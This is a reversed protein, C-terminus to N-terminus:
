RSNQLPVSEKNSSVLNLRQQKQILVKSYRPTQYNNPM